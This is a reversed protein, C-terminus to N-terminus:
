MMRRLIPGIGLGGEAPHGANTISKAVTHIRTHSVATPVSAPGTGGTASGPREVETVPVRSAAVRDDSERAASVKMSMATMTTSARRAPLAMRNMRWGTTIPSIM